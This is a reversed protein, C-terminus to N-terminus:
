CVSCTVVVDKNLRSDWRALSDRRPSLPVNTFTRKIECPGPKFLFLWWHPWSLTFPCSCGSAVRASDEQGAVRRHCRSNAEGARLRRSRPPLPRVFNGDPAVCHSKVELTNEHVALVHDWTGHRWHQASICVCIELVSSSLTSFPWWGSHSILGDLQGLLCPVALLHM